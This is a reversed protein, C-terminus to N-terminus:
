ASVAVRPSTREHRIAAQLSLVRAPHGLDTWGAHPLRVVGLREPQRALVDKSFDSAPLSTFVSAAAEAERPTGITDVLPQMADVLAPQARAIVQQFADVTGVMVFTNWLCRRRLLEEASSISPKEWFQQVRFAPTGLQDDLRLGPEIWGYEAEPRDAEAGVLFVVDEIRRALDYAHSVTRRLMEADSYYHDAPFLGAVAGRDEHAIRALAYAIAPTTGRGEPQEILRNAALDRLEDRYFQRHAQTVVCLTRAPEVNLAVRARTEAILTHAGVLACFQKPRDDGTLRRTLPQLRSGNGGALIVAWNM